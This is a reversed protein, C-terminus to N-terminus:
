SSLFSLFMNGLIGSLFSFFIILPILINNKMIIKLSINKKNYFFNRFILPPTLSLSFFHDNQVQNLIM